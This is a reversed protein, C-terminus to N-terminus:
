IGNLEERLGTLLIEKKKLIENVEGENVQPKFQIQNLDNFFEELGKKRNLFIEKYFDRQKWIASLQQLTNASEVESILKQILNKKAKKRKIKKLVKWGAFSSLLLFTVIILAAFIKNKVFWNLSFLEQENYIYTQPIEGIAGDWKIDPTDIQQTGANSIEIKDSPKFDPGLVLKVKFKWGEQSKEWASTSFIFLYKKDIGNKITNPSIQSINVSEDAVISGEAISGPKYIQNSDDLRLEIQALASMSLILGLLFQIM